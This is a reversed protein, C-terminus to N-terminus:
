RRRVEAPEGLTLERGDVQLRYALVKVGADMAGRLADGYKPDVEDAPRVTSVDTRSILFFLTASGGERAISTLERLHKRGRETPADPFAGIGQDDRLTVSKVEVWRTSDIRFDIRSDGHRVESELHSGGLVGLLGEKVVQNARATNVMVRASGVESLEWSYKLKRKPNDSRSLWIRGGPEMCSTMRGPNACHATVLAGNLQVDALFRKYRKVLV